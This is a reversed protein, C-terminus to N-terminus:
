IININTAFFFCALLLACLLTQACVLAFLLQQACVLVCVLKLPSVLACIHRVGEEREYHYDANAQVREGSTLM